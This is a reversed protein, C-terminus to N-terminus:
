ILINYVYSNCITHFRFTLTSRVFISLDIIIIYVFKDKLITHNWKWMNSQFIFCFLLFSFTHLVVFRTERYDLSTCIWANSCQYGNLWFVHDLNLGLYTLNCFLFKFICKKFRKINIPHSGFGQIHSYTSKRVVLLRIEYFLM